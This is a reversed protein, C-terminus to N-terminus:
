MVRRASRLTARKQLFSEGSLISLAEKLGAIEATRRRMKEAYTDPKAICMDDLKALYESVADLEAQAGSRDSGLEAVSKDLSASEKTKYKVDQEKTAKSIENENTEKDYDSAATQETITMEALGKSFDSEVVELMGIIGTSAGDAEDHAKDATAYYERLINLALKVGELGQEMDAKNTVFATKEESRMQNMAAQSGALDALAKQLGAIDEKLQSSRANMSDIKTSLKEIEAETEAKKTLSEGTEKDCYAKHTADADAEKELREIMDMILGKVKGFPDDGQQAGSQIASAMRMALQTLVKDHQKHGLERVLRVAEFNALDASTSLSVRSVQLLSVQNLGYSLSEAGSTMDAVAKKAEALAKLEETRSKVEAEYDESKTMCDQKVGALSKEDEALASSTTALDGEATAKAEGAEALAKKAESVEKNGFKIADQLSQQMMEFSHLSNTEENRASALQDKAKDLLGGLTDIINGSHSAYVTPDPAGFEESDDNAQDSSQVLATLKTVDQSELMSADVMVKLAQAVSGANQLQAMSAGGKSLERELIAIARELTGIVEVL